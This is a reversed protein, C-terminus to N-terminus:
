AEEAAGVPCTANCSGCDICQDADIEYKGDKETICSVPCADACAGCAICADSIKYAM